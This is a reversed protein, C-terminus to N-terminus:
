VSDTFYRFLQRQRKSGAAEYVDLIQDVIILQINNLHIGPCGSGDGIDGLHGIHRHHIKRGIDHQSLIKYGKAISGTQM